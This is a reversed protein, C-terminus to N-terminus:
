PTRMADAATVSMTALLPPIWSSSSVTSPGEDHFGRTVPTTAGHLPLLLTFTTPSRRNLLLRGGDAEALRRALALGIGHGAATPSRRM